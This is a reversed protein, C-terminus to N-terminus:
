GDSAEKRLQKARRKIVGVVTGYPRKEVHFDTFTKRGKAGDFKEIVGVESEDLEWIFVKRHGPLEVTTERKIPRSKRWTGIQLLIGM